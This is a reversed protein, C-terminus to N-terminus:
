TTAVGSAINVASALFGTPPVMTIKQAHQIKQASIAKWAINHSV